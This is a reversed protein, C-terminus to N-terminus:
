PSSDAPAASLEWSWQELYNAIGAESMSEVAGEISVGDNEVVLPEDNKMAFSESNQGGPGLDCTVDYTLNVLPRVDLFYTRYDPDNQLFYNYTLLLGFLQTEDLTTSGEGQCSQQSLDSSAYTVSWDADGESLTLSYDPGLFASFQYNGIITTPLGDMREELPIPERSFVLKNLTVESFELLTFGPNGPAPTATETGRATGEWHGCAMNSALLGPRRSRPTVGLRQTDEYDANVFIFVIEEVSEEPLDQCFTVFPVLTLDYPGSWEGQSKVLILTRTNRDLIEAFPESVVYLAEGEYLIPLDTPPDRRLDFNFGNGFLLSRLNEASFAARRYQASLARVGPIAPGVIDGTERDLNLGVLNTEEFNPFEAGMGEQTHVVGEEIDDWIQYDRIYEDNWNAVAFDTFLDVFQGGLVEDIASFVPLREHAEWFARVLGAEGLTETVYLHFLFGSYEHTGRLDDLPVFPVELLSTSGSLYVHETNLRPYVFHEIWTATSEQLWVTADTDEQFEGDLEVDVDYTYQFAHFLEHAVTATMLQSAFLEDSDIVEDIISHLNVVFNSRWGGGPVETTPNTWGLDSNNPESVVHVRYVDPDSGNGLPTRGTYEALISYSRALAQGVVIRTYLKQADTFSSDWEISVRGNAVLVPPDFPSASGGKPAQATPTGAGYWSDPDDPPLRFPQLENQVELPLDGFRHALEYLIPSGHVPGGADYEPPLRSDGFLAFVKYRLATITDIEGLALAREIQDTATPANRDIPPPVDSAVLVVNSVDASGRENTATLTFITSETVATTAETGEVAGINPEISVKDADTVQWSLTVEGGGM